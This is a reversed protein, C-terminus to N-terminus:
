NAASLGPLASTGLAPLQAEVLARATSGHVDHGGADLTQLIERQINGRALAAAYSIEPHFMVMSYRPIFRDPFARELAHGLQRQRVFAPDLVSSRMEVYNELAMAAIAAADPKRRAEFREFLECWSRSDDLLQDVASCDEFACNMGQGHFPVIAHAADGLLLVDGGSHWRDCYVTGMIGQPHAAFEDLLQPMLAKADPFEAAFLEAVQASTTLAAFSRAGAKPLFLTATFTGDPNPLAILMFDGRPWIHLAHPDLLHQGSRAPITLEKYDHDLLVERATLHGAAALSMRLASGAGDTAITPQLAVEHDYAAQRDRLLLAGAASCAGLCAHEFRFSVNPEAAAAEILLTNLADREVSYIVERPTQGYALLTTTGDLGHVARGRMPMLLPQVREALGARELARLGRAALALNISRGSDDPTLRPDSRREFVTVQFGRKALLLALLAGSLGAGVVNVSGAALKM